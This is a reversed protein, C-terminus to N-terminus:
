HNGGDHAYTHDLELTNHHMMNMASALADEPTPVRAKIKRGALDYRRLAELDALQATGRLRARTPKPARLLDLHHRVLWLIRESVLGELLTAGVEAHDRMDVAKGVDHVLAALVLEGDDTDSHAADFVQLSHFLADGEPHYKPDQAVGDLATLLQLIQDYM